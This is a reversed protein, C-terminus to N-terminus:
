RDKINGAKLDAQVQEVHPCTLQKENRVALRRLDSCEKKTCLNIASHEAELKVFCRNLQWYRVSYIGEGIYVTEGNNEKLAKVKQIKKPVDISGVDNSIM